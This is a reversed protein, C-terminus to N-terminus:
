VASVPDPNAGPKAGVIKEFEEREITEKDLLVAVIKELANKQENIIAVAKVEGQMIFGSIEEDIREAVKESYNRQEHIHRRM